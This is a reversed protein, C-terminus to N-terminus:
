ICASVRHTDLPPPWEALSLGESELTETEAAWGTSPRAGLSVPLAEEPCPRQAARPSLILVEGVGWLSLALPVIGITSEGDRHSTLGPCSPAKAEVEESHPVM